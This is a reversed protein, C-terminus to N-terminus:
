RVHVGRAHACSVDQRRRDAWSLRLIGIPRRPDKLDARSRRLAKSIAIVAEDQGIVKGKLESEMALLKQTEQQEMRSAPNGDVEFRRAHHRRGHRHVESRKRSSEGSPSFQM